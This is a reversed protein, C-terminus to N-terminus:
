QIYNEKIVKIHLLDEIKPHNWAGKLTTCLAAYTNSFTLASKLEKETLSTLKRLKQLKHLTYLLSGFFADGAGVTSKTAVKYVEIKMDFQVKQNQILLVRSGKEGLTVAILKPNLLTYIDRLSEELSPNKRSPNLYQGLQLAEDSGVKLIDVDKLAREALSWMEEEKNRWLDKRFNVDCSIACHGKALSIAEFTTSRSPEMLLTVSGFNLVEASRIYQANLDNVKMFNYAVNTYLTFNPKARKLEVFVVGTHHETDRTIQSVDMGKSRLTEILFDGFPDAGVRSILGAKAGLTSAAVVVNTPAGGPFKVFSSVEKLNINEEHAIFDILVEGISVIAPMSIADNNKNNM